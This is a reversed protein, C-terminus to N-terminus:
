PVQSTEMTASAAMTIENGITKMDQEEGAAYYKELYELRDRMNRYDTEDMTVYTAGREAFDIIFLMTKGDLMANEYARYLEAANLRYSDATTTKFEISETPTRVDNKKFWGNGSGPMIRGGYRTAGRREQMRSRRLHKNATM